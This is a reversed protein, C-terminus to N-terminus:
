AMKCKRRLRMERLPFHNLRGKKLDILLSALLFKFDGETLLPTDFDLDESFRPLNHFFRLATGGTFFLRSGLEHKYISHLLIVQLYERVIGRKKLLPLEQTKAEELLYELSLM